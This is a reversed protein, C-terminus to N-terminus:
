NKTKPARGLLYGVRGALDEARRVMETKLPRSPRLLAFPTAAMLFLAASFAMLYSASCIRRGQMVALSRGSNYSRRLIFSVTTFRAPTWHRVFIAPDYWFLPHKSYLRQAFDTEEGPGTSEGTACGYRPSFGGLEELASKAFAMNAGSFGHKARPPKLFGAGKGWSRLEFDDCFWSPPTAEYWPRIEGGVAVPRPSMTTFAAVIRECWEPCAQADDDIYAVLEGQAERWGRNRAHSVGQRPELVLRLNPIRPAFSSAVTRTGDTSNNDIVLVEYREKDLTQGALSQLCHRLLAERNYTCVVVSLLPRMPEGAVAPLTAFLKGYYSEFGKGSFNAAAHAYAADSLRHLLPRDQHLREVIAAFRRVLDDEDRCDGLLFGNEGDRLHHSIGGVDTTAPVVGNAMAEMVVMPFGERESTLLLIDSARYVAAVAEPDQLEGTFRCYPHDALDVAHMLAGVLTFDAPVGLEHCLRAIRGVLHVRKEETGRGVYLVRLPETAVREPKVVPVAVGNEVVDIRKLLDDPMNCDAYQRNLDEFTHYDIVIRRDLRAALPLSISEIGGGFAHILDVVFADEKLYPLLTYFLPTNSSFVLPRTSSNIVAALYGVVVAASVPNGTWRSLEVIRANEAFTERLADGQSRHTIFVM